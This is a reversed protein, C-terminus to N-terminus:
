WAGNRIDNVLVDREFEFRKVAHIEAPHDQIEVGLHAQVARRVM